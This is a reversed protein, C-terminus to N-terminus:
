RVVRLLHFGGCVGCKISFEKVEHKMVNDTNAKVRPPDSITYNNNDLKSKDFPMEYDEELMKLICCPHHPAMGHAQRHVAQQHVFIDRIRVDEAMKAKIGDLFAEKLANCFEKAFEMSAEHTVHDLRQILRGPVLTWNARHLPKFRENDTDTGLDSRGDFYEFGFSKGIFEFIDIIVKRKIALRHTINQGFVEQVVHDVVHAVERGHMIDESNTFQHSVEAAQKLQTLMNNTISKVSCEILLKTDPHLGQESTLRAAEESTMYPSTMESDWKIEAESATDSFVSNQMNTSM